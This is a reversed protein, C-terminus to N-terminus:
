LTMQPLSFIRFSKKKGKSAFEFSELNLIEGAQSVGEVRITSVVQTIDMPNYM